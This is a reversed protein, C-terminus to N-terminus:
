ESGAYGATITFGVISALSDVGDCRFVRGAQMADVTVCDAEGTESTLCVGSKMVIDHEYYTGCAVLVTDGFAASDAGAQITPCEAPVHM